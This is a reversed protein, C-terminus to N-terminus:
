PNAAYFDEKTDYGLQGWPTEMPVEYANPRYDPSSKDDQPLVTNQKFPLFVKNKDINNLLTEVMDITEGKCKKKNKWM